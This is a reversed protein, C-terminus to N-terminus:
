PAAGHECWDRWMARYATEVDRTFQRSDMLPSASLRARLGQRVAALVDVDAALQVCREIYGAADLAAFESCNGATLVSLSARSLFSGGALAVVPLGMWLADCTTTGGNCPFPDLAVDVGAFLELYAARPLRGLLTVRERAVGLSEFQRWLTERPEGAPVTILTLRAAPLAVLVKAWLAIVRPGVKAYSNFSGFMLNGTALAPLPAVGPMDALPQYCWLSHPLRYLRETYFQEGMGPPETVGDTLRWGMAALGTTAPYGLYTLQVPAPQHALALLRNHATHGALDVLVDIGDARILEIFQADSLGTTNRWADVLGQLQHTIDDPQAVEAYAHVEVVTRDHARLLPELFAACAHRRFDPSVYAIKLRRGPDRANAFPAPPPLASAQLHAWGVHLEFIQAQSLSDMFATAFLLNSHAAHYDPRVALARSYSALADNLRGADKLANGLNLHAEALAPDLAIAREFCAIAPAHAGTQQLAIGLNFQVVASRPVLAAAEEYCRRAETWQGEEQLLLGLNNWARDMRPDTGLVERFCQKAEAPRGASRYVNGLNCLAATCGPRLRLAERCCYEAEALKGYSYLAFGLNNHADPQGPELRIARHLTVIAEPLQRDDILLAGLLNLLDADGPKLASAKRLAVLAGARDGHRYRHLGAARLAPVFEPSAALLQELLAGAAQTDGRQEALEAQALRAGPSAGPRVGSCCHKHKRGSGCSCPDNRAPSKVSPKMSPGALLMRAM